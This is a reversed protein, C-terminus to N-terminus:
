RRRFRLRISTYCIVSAGIFITFPALSKCKSNEYLDKIKYNSLIGYRFYNSQHYIKWKFPINFSSEQNHFYSKGKSNNLSLELAKKTLGDERYEGLYIIKDFWRIKYGDNAMKNWLIAETMYKEGEFEPFRYKKLVKTYFVEAKDGRINYDYYLEISTADFASNPFQNSLLKKNFSAKLGSIGCYEIKEEVCEDMYIIEQISEKPLIDDSDVIFFMYNDCLEIARNLARHKGGNNIYYYEIEIKDEEIIMQVVERTNDVSGDDIILWKFDKCIQDRLSEYLRYLLESRNYTPTVIAIKKM